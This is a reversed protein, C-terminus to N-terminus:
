PVFQVKQFKAFQDSPICIEWHGKMTRQLKWGIEVVFGSICWGQIAVSSRNYESAVISPSVWVTEGEVRIRPRYKM